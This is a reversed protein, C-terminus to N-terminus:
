AGGGSPTQATAATQKAQPAAAKFEALIKEVAADFAARGGGMIRTPLPPRKNKGRLARAPPESCDFFEEFVGSLLGATLMEGAGTARARVIARMQALAYLRVAVGPLGQSLDYLAQGVAPDDEWFGTGRLAWVQMLLAMLVLWDEDPVPRRTPDDTAAASMPPWQLSGESAFRRATHLDKQVFALCHPAAAFFVPLGLHGSLGILSEFFTASNKRSATVNEFNDAVLLGVQHRGILRELERQISWVDSWAGLRAADTAGTLRVIEAIAALCFDKYKGGAPCQVRMHVIQRLAFGLEEPSHDVVQPYRSLVRELAATKGTGPLGTLAGTIFTPRRPRGFAERGKARAPDDRLYKCDPPLDPRRNLYGQDLMSDIILALSQCAHRPAFLKDPIGALLQLREQDPRRCDIRGPRRLLRRALDTWSDELFCPLAEALPNGPFLFEGSPRYRAKQPMIQPMIQAGTPNETM